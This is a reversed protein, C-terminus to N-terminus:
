QEAPTLVPGTLQRAATAPLAASVIDYGGAQRVDAAPVKVPLSVIDYGGAPRVDSAPVKGGITATASSKPQGPSPGPTAQGYLLYAVVGLVAAGCALFAAAYQVTLRLRATRRPLRLRRPQGPRPRPTRMSPEGIRYGSERATAEM